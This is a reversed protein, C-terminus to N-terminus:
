LTNSISNGEWAHRNQNTLVTAELALDVVLRHYSYDGNRHGSGVDSDNILSPTELM